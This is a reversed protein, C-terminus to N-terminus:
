LEQSQRTVVENGKKFLVKHVVVDYQEEQIASAKGLPLVMTFMMAFAM